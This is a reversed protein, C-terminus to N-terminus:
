NTSHKNINNWYDYVQEIEIADNISFQGSETRVLSLLHALNNIRAALDVAFSRVYFGKSVKIIIKLIQKEYNFDLINYEFIKVLRPEIEFIINNRALEYAKKGNIKLASFKPPKQWYENKYLNEIASEIETLTIFKNIKSIIEGTSDYTNTSIGFQIEAVYTKSDLTLKTLLKTGENIGLVLIGSANPDLTGAHGVKKAKIIRKVKQVVDNSTWNIPKNIVIINKNITYM